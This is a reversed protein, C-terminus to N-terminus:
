LSSNGSDIDKLIDTTAGWGPIEYAEQWGKAYRPNRFGDPTWRSLTLTKDHRIDVNPHESVWSEAKFDDIGRPPKHVGPEYGWRQYFRGEREIRELRKHYHELLLERSACLGSVQQCFDTRVALGDPYRMRWVNINYYYADDRPPTFAFHSQHYLVDSECLFVYDSTAQELGAMVQKHMSEPSRKLPLVINADGFDIPQLSISILAHGNRASTLQRRCAMEIDPRHTNCTYYLITANSM